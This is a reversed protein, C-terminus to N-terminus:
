IKTWLNQVVNPSSNVLPDAATGVGSLGAGTTLGAFAIRMALATVDVDVDIGEGSLVTFTDGPNLQM